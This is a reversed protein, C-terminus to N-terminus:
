LMKYLKNLYEAELPTLRRNYKRMQNLIESIIFNNTWIITGPTMSFTDTMKIRDSLTLREINISTQSILKSLEAIKIILRSKAQYFNPDLFLKKINNDISHGYIFKGDNIQRVISFAEDITIKHIDIEM